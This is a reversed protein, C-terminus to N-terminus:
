LDLRVVYICFKNSSITDVFSSTSAYFITFELYNLLLNRPSSKTEEVLFGPSNGYTQDRIRSATRELESGSSVLLSTAEVEVKRGSYL